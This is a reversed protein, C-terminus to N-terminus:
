GCLAAEIVADFTGFVSRDASNALVVVSRSTVPDAWAEGGYGPFRGGHGYAEGCDTQTRAIGLGYGTWLDLNDERVDTMADLQAPPLLGGEFLSRLFRSVDPADAAVGGAADGWYVDLDTVDSGAEYGHVMGTPVVGERVFQASPMGVRDFLLRQVVQELPRGTAEEVVLGLVVYNVNRYVLQDGPPFELPARAVQRVFDEETVGHRGLLRRENVDRLGSQHSLLQGLSIQDGHALLGPRWREVTDDLALRHREVLQLVTAAVMPKTISAIRFLGAPRMPTGSERDSVGLALTRSGTRDALVVVMGPAIGAAVNAAAVEEVAAARDDLTSGGGAPTGRTGGAGTAPEDAPGPGSCAVMLLGAIATAAARVVRGRDM